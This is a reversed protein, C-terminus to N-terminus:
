DEDKELSQLSAPCNNRQQTWTGLVGHNTFMCSQGTGSTKIVLPYTGMPRDDEGPQTKMWETQKMELRESARPQVNKFRGQLTTVENEFMTSLRRLTERSQDLQQKINQKGSARARSDKPRALTVDEEDEAGSEHEKM